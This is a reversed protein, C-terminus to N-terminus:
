LILTMLLLLCACALFFLFGPASCATKVNIGNGSLKHERLGFVFLVAGFLSLVFLACLYLMLPLVGPERIVSSFLLQGMRESSVSSGVRLLLMPLVLTSLGNVLIHLAVTYRLRGTKFYIYGFVLGLLFAYCVQNVSTHFLAFALASCLLATREGFPLLRDMISRRFVYEEMVPAAVVLLLAQLAPHDDLPVAGPLSPRFPLLVRLLGLVFQGLLNGGYAAFLCAPILMLFANLKLTHGQRMTPPKGRLLIFLPFGIGYIPLYLSAVPPLTKALFFQGAHIGLLMAALAFGLRSYSRRAEARDPVAERLVPARGSCPYLWVGTLGLFFLGLLLNVGTVVTFAQAVFGGAIGSVLLMGDFILGVYLLLIQIVQKFTTGIAAPLSVDVFSGATSAFFDVGALVPVFALGKFPSFGAAFSGAMLPLLTDLACNCSGGLASFFLKSWIPDPQLLFSAKRIDESVPSIITRFFVMAALVLAPIYAVPEDMFARDFLGAGVAAFLYTIGTKTLLLSRSFRFRNHLVKYFYIQSGSGYRFGAARRDDRRAGLKTVLLAVGEQNLEERLLAMEQARNLTEEYYDAPMHRAAFLLLLILGLNLGLLLVSEATKREMAFLLFGKIWGWVPIWRTWPQNLFRHASLLLVQEESQRYSRYFLFGLLALGGLIFWRLNKRFFPHTSGFEYILIKLLISVGLTLCWSIPVSLAAWGDIGYRRMMLPVQLFLLRSAAFALGLTTMLRFSLVTQPSLDSAFLLNVDAQMFVRSVSKEAGITQIVLIGLILLGAGLELANLGTLGGADFFEMFNQPVFEDLASLREYYWRAAYALLGGITVFVIVMVFAWTRVFRKFQNWLSHIFYYLYM